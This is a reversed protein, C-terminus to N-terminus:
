HRRDERLAAQEATAYLLGLPLGYFAAHLFLQPGQPLDLLWPYRYRAFVNFNVFWLMTGYIVGIAAQRGLSRRSHMTLASNYAGYFLGFMASLYFHMVVGLVLATATPVPTLARIGLLVSADRRFALIAPEGIAVTGVIKAALLIAGAILGLRAGEKISRSVDSM